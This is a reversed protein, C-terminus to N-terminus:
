GTMDRIEDVVEFAEEIFGIAVEHADVATEFAARM